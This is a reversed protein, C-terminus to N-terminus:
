TLPQALHEALLDVFAKIAQSGRRNAAYMAYLGIEMEGPNAQYGGLLPQLTGAALDGRVLWDPLMAIGVGDLAARRLMESNNITLTGRVPLETFGAGAQQSQLRWGRRAVGYSFLLCNHRLLDEPAEPTGHRELYAPSACIVRQHGSLRRAILNPQQQAAGIRIAVDISDDVMNSVADSLHLDLELRPHRRALEGLLPAIFMTSFTVPASVRLLGGAQGHRAAAADDAQDLQALIAQASAYYQQGSDTLTVKRTSRNLLATGVRKELADVLRTVSSAAVGLQRAAPSFGGSAAVLCFAKLEAFRDM